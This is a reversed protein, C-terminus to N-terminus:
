RYSFKVLMNLQQDAEFVANPGKFSRALRLGEEIFMKAENDFKQDGTRRGELL